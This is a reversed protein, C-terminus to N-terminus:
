SDSEDDTGQTIRFVHAPSVQPNLEIYNWAGRWTYRAGTLLDEVQFPRDTELGIVPLPLEVWGSQTHAPDINVVVLVVNNAASGAAPV